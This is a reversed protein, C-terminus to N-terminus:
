GCGAARLVASVNALCQETQAEISGPEVPPEGPKVPLQGSVYILGAHEIGQAYHGAPRPADNTVIERM